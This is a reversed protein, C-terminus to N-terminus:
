VPRAEAEPACDTYLLTEFREMVPKGSEPVAKVYYNMTTQFDAHRPIAQVVKPDVGMQNLNTTLGRRFAHWGYWSLELKELLPRGSPGAAVAAPAPLPRLAVAFWFQGACAGVSGGCVTGVRAATSRTARTFQDSLFQFCFM